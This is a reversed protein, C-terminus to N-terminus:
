IFCVVDNTSNWSHSMLLNHTVDQAPNVNNATRFPICSMDVQYVLGCLIIVTVVLCPYHFSFCEKFFHIYILCFSKM